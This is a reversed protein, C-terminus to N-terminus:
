HLRLEVFNTPHDLFHKYLYNNWLNHTQIDGEIVAMQKGFKRALGEVTKFTEESTLLGRIIEVLTMLPVPNMFHMGIVKEPRGTQAAIRGLDIPLIKEDGEYARVEGTERDGVLYVFNVMQSAVMDDTAFDRGSLLQRFYFRESM